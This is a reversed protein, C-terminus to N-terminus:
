QLKGHKTQDTKMLSTSAVFLRFNNEADLTATSGNPVLKGLRGVLTCFSGFSLSDDIPLGYLAEISKGGEWHSLHQPQLRRRRRLLLFTRLITIVITQFVLGDNSCQCQQEYDVM